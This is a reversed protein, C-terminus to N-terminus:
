MLRELSAALDRRRYPKALLEVHELDDRGIAGLSGPDGSVFLVGLGPRAAMALRALELGNMGTGLRFDTILIRISPTRDLLALATAADIATVCSRGLSRLVRETFELMMSDDDVVLLEVM